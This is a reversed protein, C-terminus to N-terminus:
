QLRSDSAVMLAEQVLKLDSANAPVINKPQGGNALFVSYDAIPILGSGDVFYVTKGVKVWTGAPHADSSSQVVASSVPLGSNTVAVVNKLSYGLKKFATFNTFGIKAGKYIQYITGNELILSGNPYSVAGLVSGTVTVSATACSSSADSECVTVSASGASQGYLYLSPTNAAGALSAEVVSPNTNSQIFFSETSSSPDMVDLTATHGVQVTAQYQNLWVPGAFVKFPVSSMLALLGILSVSQLFKIKM